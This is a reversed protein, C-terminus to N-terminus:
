SKFIDKKHNKNCSHKQKLNHSKVLKVIKQLDTFIFVYNINIKNFKM